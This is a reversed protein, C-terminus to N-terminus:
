FQMYIFSGADYSTGYIGLIIVAFIILYTIICKVIFGHSMVWACLSIKREHIIDVFLMFLLLLILLYFNEQSLGFTYITQDFLVWPNWSSFIKQFVLLANSLTGARFFVWAISMWIFTWLRKWCIFLVSDTRIHLRDYLKNRASNFLMGAIQFAGNLGGWILFTVGTGHWIGSVFFVIMINLYKRFTGKRNGGLPIYLYDRLWSTLSIHWRRWFDVVSTALYPQKFNDPLSFGLIRGVGLAMYTCGAFDFYIQLSYFFVALLVVFGECSYLRNYVTDVYIGLRDAVVMKEFCGGLLLLVGHQINNWDAKKHTDNLQPLLNESRDIPGILMEPFFAIFASLTIFNREPQIRDKYIDALYGVSKFTFYSLGMPLVLSFQANGSNACLRNFASFIWSGYKYVLLPLLVAIVACSLVTTKKHRSILLGSIYVLISFGILLPLLKWNYLAYFLYSTLLIWFTKAKGPFLYYCVTVPLLFLLFQLSNFPM